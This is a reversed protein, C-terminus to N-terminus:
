HGSHACQMVAVLSEDAMGSLDYAWGSDNRNGNKHVRRLEPGFLIEASVRTRERFIEGGALAGPRIGNKKRCHFIHIGGIGAHCDTLRAKGGLKAPSAARPVESSDARDHGFKKEGNLGCM